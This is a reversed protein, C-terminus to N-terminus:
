LLFGRSQMFDVPHKAHKEQNCTSRLLQVNSDSNEGGLHIPLIHDIHYKSGLPKGCCVCLGNQLNFLKEIIGRSLKGGVERVLARRNSNRIRYKEPFMARHAKGYERIRDKNKESYDAKAERVKQPNNKRWRASLERNKEPNAKVWESSLKRSLDVNDRRWKDGYEKACQRCRPNIGSKIGSHKTFESM